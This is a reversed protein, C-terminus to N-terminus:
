SSWCCPGVWTYIRACVGNVGILYQSDVGGNEPSSWRRRRRRRKGALHSEPAKGLILKMALKSPISSQTEGVQQNERFKRLDWSGHISPPQKSNTHLFHPFQPSTIPLHQTTNHISNPFNSFANPSPSTTREATKKQENHIQLTLKSAKQINNRLIKLASIILNSPSTILLLSIPFNKFTIPFSSTTKEVKKNM